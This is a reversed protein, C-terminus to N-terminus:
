AAARRGKSRARQFEQINSRTIAEALAPPVANGIQRVQESVNGTFEYSEPFSQAKSLEKAKLMRTTIELRWCTGDSTVITQVLAIAGDTAVTPAPQDIPRLQGGSHQPLLSAQVLKIDGRNGCVTPLPSEVDHSRTAGGGHATPILYSTVLAHHRGGATITGLPGTVPQSASPIQDDATGRLKVIFSEVIQRHNEATVTGMPNETSQPKAAYESGGAGFLFPQIGTEVLMGAGHGTVAPMPENIDHSRPAQGPAETFNPVIFAAADVLAFRNSGVVTGMPVDLSRVRRNDPTKEKPPNGHSVEVLFPKIIDGGFKRLGHIIRRMTNPKLPHKRDFISKGKLSWDICTSAAVWKKLPAFLTNEESDGDKSHTAEPWVIRNRGRAALVILRERTTPAGYDACCLIRWDVKYGFSRLAQVWAMFTKGKGSKLPKGNKDLPGWDRFEPVNEVVIYEPALKDAWNVICWATCRSQDNRPKGGRARSHHTCEPGAMLQFLEGRKYLKLPDVDDVKTLLHRAKPHNKSHTAIAINWHNVATLHVEYGLENAATIAGTSTGGAGCFLDAMHIVPKRKSKM